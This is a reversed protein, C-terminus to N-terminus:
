KLNISINKRTERRGVATEIKSKASKERSIGGFVIKAESESRSFHNM